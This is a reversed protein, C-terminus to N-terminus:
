GGYHVGEWLGFPQFRFFPTQLVRVANEYAVPRSDAILPVLEPKNNLVGALEVIPQFDMESLGDSISAFRM